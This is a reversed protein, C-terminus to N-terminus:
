LRVETGDAASRYIASVVRMVDAGESGPVAPPIGDRICRVFHEIELEYSRRYLDRVNELAPTVNTRQGHMEKILRLPSLYATGHTGYIEVFNLDQETLFSWSAVLTLSREGALRLFAVVSDEVNSAGSSSWASASEVAPRGLLWLALDLIQQGIDMLVGGGALEPKEMWSRRRRESRRRMWGVRAYQVQGLEGKEVFRRLVQADQRFRNNFACMVIRQAEEAARVIAEAEAVCTSFPKECLVHKGAELAAIAVPAHLYNPACIDVADIDELNLLERYDEIAMPVAFHRAVRRAKGGDSDCVAVLRANSLRGYAPIHSLQAAAGAGVIGVRVPRSGVL